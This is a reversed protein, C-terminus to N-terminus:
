LRQILDMDIMFPPMGFSSWRGPEGELDESTTSATSHGVELASPTTSNTSQRTYARYQVYALVISIIALVTALCGFLVSLVQEGM